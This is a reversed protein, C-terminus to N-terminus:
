DVEDSLENIDDPRRPHVSALPAALSALALLFREADYNQLATQLADRASEYEPGLLDVNIGSDPRLLVQREFLSVFVLLGTHERTAAINLRHFSAAAEAAVGQMRESSSLCRRKLAPWQTVVFGALVGALAADVPILWTTYATPSLVMVLAAVLAVAAGARISARLYRSSARRVSVVVEVSTHSEIQKVIETARQRMAPELFQREAM